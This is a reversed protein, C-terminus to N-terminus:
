TKGNNKKHLERLVGRLAILYFMPAVLGPFVYAVASHWHDISGVAVFISVQALLACFLRWWTTGVTNESWSVPATFLTKM